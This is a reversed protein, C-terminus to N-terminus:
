EEWEIKITAVSENKNFIFKMRSLAEEKTNFITRAANVEPKDEPRYINVWGEKKETAFFLDTGGDNNYDEKGDATFSLARENSSNEIGKILALIPYQVNLVGFKRDTCVIRVSRGDRTVIKRNPNELYEQLNFQKM